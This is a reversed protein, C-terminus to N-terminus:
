AAHSRALDFAGDDASRWSGPLAIAAEDAGTRGVLLMAAAPGFTRQLELLGPDVAGEPGGLAFRAAELLVFDFGGARVEAADQVPPGVRRLCFRVGRERLGAIAVVNPLDHAPHDLALVLQGALDPDDSLRRELEAAFAANSLSDAAIGCVITVERGEARAQRLLEASRRVLRQDILGLLGGRAASARYHAPAVPSATPPM